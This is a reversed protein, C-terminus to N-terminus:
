VGLGRFGFFVRFGIVLSGLRVLVRSAKGSFKEDAKHLEARLIAKGDLVQRAEGQPPHYLDATGM